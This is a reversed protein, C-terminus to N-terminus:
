KRTFSLPRRWLKWLPRSSLPRWSCGRSHSYLPDPPISWGGPCTSRSAPFRLQVRPCRGVHVAHCFLLCHPTFHIRTAQLCTFKPHSGAVEDSTSRSIGVVYLLSFKEFIMDGPTCPPADVHEIFLILSLKGPHAVEHKPTHESMSMQTTKPRALM